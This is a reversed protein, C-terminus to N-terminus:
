TKDKKRPKGVERFVSNFDRYYRYVEKLPFRWLRKDKKDPVTQVLKVDQWGHPNVFGYVPYKRSVKTIKIVQVREIKQSRAISLRHLGDLIVPKVSGDKERQYEIVVPLLTYTNKSEDTAYSVYGNLNFIDINEQVLARRLKKLNSLTRTILYFSEPMLDSVPIRTLEIKAHKYIYIPNKTQSSRLLTIQKLKKILEEKAHKQLNFIKM